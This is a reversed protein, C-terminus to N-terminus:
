HSRTHLSLRFINSVYIIPFQLWAHRPQGKNAPQSLPWLRPASVVPIETITALWSALFVALIELTGLFKIKCPKIFLGRTLRTLNDVDWPSSKFSSDEASLKRSSKVTLCSSIHGWDLSDIQHKYSWSSWWVEFWRPILLHSAQPEWNSLVIYALWSRRESVEFMSLSRWRDLILAKPYILWTAFSFYGNCSLLLFQLFAWSNGSISM